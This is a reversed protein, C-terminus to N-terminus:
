DKNKKQKDLLNQYVFIEIKELSAQIPTLKTSTHVRNKYEKTITPLIDIWNGDRGEFVPRKLLDRTALNFREAFVAALFTYRSNYRKINNTKQVM